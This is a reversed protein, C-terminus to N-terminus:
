RSVIGLLEDERLVLVEEGMVEVTTGAFSPYVVEDGVQVDLPRVKGKKTRRGTGVALVKGRNPRESASGPIIIGGATKEEPKQISIVIRDELPTIVRSWEIKRATVSPVLASSPRQSPTQAKAAKKAPAVKKTPVPKKTSAAKKMPASKKASAAKAVKAKAKSSAAKPQTAKKPKSKKQISKKKNTAM